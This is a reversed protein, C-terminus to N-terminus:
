LTVTLIAWPQLVYGNVQYDGIIQTANINTHEKASEEIRRKDFEYDASIKWCQVKPNASLLYSVYSKSYINYYYFTIPEGGPLFECGDDQTIVDKIRFSRNGCLTRIILYKKAVRILERLPQEISPLHLLVNNCMVVDFSNDAFDLAFIDTVSFSARNDNSFAQRALEIYHETADCGTYFFSDGIDKRLSRLYHGAGCGVDLITEDENIFTKIEKAIRKSCEMEPLEGTARKYLLEGYAKNQNWVKWDDNM